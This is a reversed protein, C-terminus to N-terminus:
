LNITYDQRSLHGAISHGIKIEIRLRENIMNWTGEGYHVLKQVTSSAGRKALRKSIIDALYRDELNNGSVNITFVATTGEVNLLIPSSRDAEKWKVKSAGPSVEVFYDSVIAETTKLVNVDNIILNMSELDKLADVM